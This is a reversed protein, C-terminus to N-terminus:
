PKMWSSVGKMLDKIEAKTLNHAEFNAMFENQGLDKRLAENFHGELATYGELLKQLASRRAQLPRTAGTYFHNRLEQFIHQVQGADDLIDRIM